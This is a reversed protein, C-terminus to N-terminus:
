LPMKADAALGQPETVAAGQGAFAERHSKAVTGVTLFVEADAVRGDM